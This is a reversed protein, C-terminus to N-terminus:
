RYFVEMREVFTSREGNKLLSQGLWDDHALRGNEALVVDVVAQMLPFLVAGAPVLVTCGVVVEGAQTTGGVYRELNLSQAGLHLGSVGLQVAVERPLERHRQPRIHGDPLRENGYSVAHKLMADHRPTTDHAQKGHCPSYRRFTHFATVRRQNSSQHRGERLEDISVRGLPDVPLASPHTNAILHVIETAHM